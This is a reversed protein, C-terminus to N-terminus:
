QTAPLVRPLAAPTRRLAQYALATRVIAWGLAVVGGVLLTYGLDAFVYILGFLPAKFLWPLGVLLVGALLLNLLLPGLVSTLQGRRSDNEVLRSQWHRRRTFSWGVNVLALATLGVAIGYFGLLFPDTAVVPAPRGSVLSAIGNAIGTIRGDQLLGNANVLLVIGWRGNPILILNAHFNANSGDHWIMPVDNITDRHWGMGYGADGSAPQHLTAIGAPSLLTADEYRGDNVQSILYHTLDEASALLHGAPREARNDALDAAVPRGFWYRYGTALDSAAAKTTYSHQMALPTFIHQQIYEEYSQGSVTQIILGLTWYNANSYQFGQGVPQTLQANRLGRVLEEMGDERMDMKPDPTRRGSATGLGSTQNLLHHVTIQASAADDAVGFWPLYRQVPADLELKGAEVLQMIALATFSKTTSGINFPTQATVARGAPDATGYGRSYVIQDGQVIGLALGPIRLEQMQTALYADIAARMEDTIPTANSQARVHASAVMGGIYFFLSFLLLGGLLKARKLGNM